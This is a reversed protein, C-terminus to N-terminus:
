GVPHGAQDELHRGDVSVKLPYQAALVQGAGSVLFFLLTTIALSLSKSDLM